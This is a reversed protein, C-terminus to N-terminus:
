RQFRFRLLNSFWNGERLDLCILFGIGLGWSWNLVCVQLETGKSNSEIGFDIDWELGFSSILCVCVCDM